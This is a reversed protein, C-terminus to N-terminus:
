AKLKQSRYYDYLKQNGIQVSSMRGLVKSLARGVFDRKEKHETMLYMPPDELDVRTLFTLKTKEEDYLGLAMQMCRASDSWIDNESRILKRLRVYFKEIEEGANEILESLHATLLDEAKGASGGDARCAWLSALDPGSGAEKLVTQNASFSRGNEEKVISTIKLLSQIAQKKYWSNRLRFLELEQEAPTRGIVSWPNDPIADFEAAMGLITWVADGVTVPPNNKPELVYSFPRNKLEFKSRWHSMWKLKTVHDGSSLGEMVPEEKDDRDKLFAEDIKAEDVEKLEVDRLDTILARLYYRWYWAETAKQCHRFPYVKHGHANFPTIRGERVSKFLYDSSHDGALKEVEVGLTWMLAEQHM